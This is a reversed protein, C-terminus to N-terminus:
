CFLYSFLSQIILTRNLVLNQANPTFKSLKTHKMASSVMTTPVASRYFCFVHAAPPSCLTSYQLPLCLLVTAPCDTHSKRHLLHTERTLLLPLSTWSWKRIPLNEKNINSFRTTVKNSFLNTEKFRVHTSQMHKRM